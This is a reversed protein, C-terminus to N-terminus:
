FFLPFGISHVWFKSSSIPTNLRFLCDSAHSSTYPRVWQVTLLTAGGTGTQINALIIKAGAM